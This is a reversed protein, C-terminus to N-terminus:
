QIQEDLWIWGTNTRLLSIYEARSHPSPLNSPCFVPHFLWFMTGASQLAAHDAYLCLLLDFYNTLFRRVPPRNGRNPTVGRPRFNVM